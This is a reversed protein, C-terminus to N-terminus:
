SVGTGLKLKIEQSTGAGTVLRAKRFGRDRLGAQNHNWICVAGVTVPQAFEFRVWGNTANEVTHWMTAAGGNNDHRDGSMGSGDVLHRCDQERGYTSSATVTIANSSIPEEILVAHVCLPLLLVLGIAMVKNMM